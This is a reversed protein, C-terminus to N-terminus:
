PKVEEKKPEEPQNLEPLKEDRLNAHIFAQAISGFLGSIGLLGLIHGYIGIEVKGLAACITLFFLLGCLTVVILIFAVKLAGGNIKM